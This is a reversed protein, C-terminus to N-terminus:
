FQKPISDFSEINKNMIEGFFNNFDNFIEDNKTLSCM